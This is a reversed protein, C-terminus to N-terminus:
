IGRWSVSVKAADVMMEGTLNSDASLIIQMMKLEMRDIALKLPTHGRQDICDAPAGSMVLFKVQM